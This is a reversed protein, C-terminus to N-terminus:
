VTFPQFYDSLQENCLATCLNCTVVCKNTQLWDIKTAFDVDIETLSIKVVSSYCTASHSKQDM